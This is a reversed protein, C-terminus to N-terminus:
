IRGNDRAAKLWEPVITEIFAAKQSNLLPMDLGIYSQAKEKTSLDPYTVLTVGYAFLVDKVLIQAQLAKDLGHSLVRASELPAHFSAGHSAVIFDWRWQAARILKRSPLLEDDTAGADMAAKVMVHAKVLEPELRDRLELVKDQREYVFNRLDEESDRHCTGCSSSIHALPSMVQHDSYKLGGESIYPMHCDACSVNKRGHPGLLFIEYDPHQPKLIPTKSIAHVYDAYELNDYYEEM